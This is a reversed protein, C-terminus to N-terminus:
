KIAGLRSVGAPAPGHLGDFILARGNSHFRMAAMLAVRNSELAPVGDVLEVTIRRAFALIAAMAAAFSEDDPNEITVIQRAALGMLPKGARIVIFNAADRSIGCGPLLAGYPNAPDAASMALPVERAPNLSRAARLMELAEPLAYQEGSLSRVFYGRRIAGSYELRRLAFVLDSWAIEVSELAIMERSLIGNRELLLLAVDRVRDEGRAKELAEQRLLTWRGSLSSRLRARIAADRRTTFRDRGGLARQAEPSASLLRLPAFSDNTALGSAALRWLSRLADRESVGARESVQDLFQAGGELLATRLLEAKEDLPQGCRDPDRM